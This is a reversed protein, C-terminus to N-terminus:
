ERCKVQEQYIKERREMEKRIVDLDSFPELIPKIKTLYDKQVEIANGYYPHSYRQNIVILEAFAGLIKEDIEM